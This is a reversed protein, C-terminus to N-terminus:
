AARAKPEQGLVLKRLDLANLAAYGAQDNDFYIFVDLSSRWQRIREAWERLAHRSYNGQYPGGPGHLRVYTFNATIERPSHFGALDFICFAANFQRLLDYIRQTHWSPDRFEFAYRHKRPLAQLFDKLREPHVQWRPPLQFLIPGLKEKLKEARPLFNQLANEPDKLKKMHTIFRSAKVAFLFNRPTSERWKEFAAASPLKYFSNNIEVTDFHRYYAELMRSVLLDSEYFPGRWHKYQWGSTGIRVPHGSVSAVHAAPRSGADTRSAM